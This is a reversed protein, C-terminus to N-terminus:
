VQRKRLIIDIETGPGEGTDIEGGHLEVIQKAIAMGLGLGHKKTTYFPQFIMKRQEDSLGPGNDRIVIRLAPEKLRDIQEYAVEIRASGNCASLANEFINRFVQRMAPGDIECRTDHSAKCECFQVTSSAPQPQVAMWARRVVAPVDILAVQLLRPKVFELVTDHLRQLEDLASEMRIVCERLRNEDRADKKLHHLAAAIRQLVNRSEHAVSSVAQGISALRELRQWEATARDGSANDQAVLTWLIRRELRVAVMTARVAVVHGDKRVLRLPQIRALETAAENTNQPDIALLFQAECERSILAIISRGLLENPGYHLLGEAVPNAAEICGEEDFTLIAESKIARDSKISSSRSHQLLSMIGEM